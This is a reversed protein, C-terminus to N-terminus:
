GFAEVRLTAAGGTDKLLYDGMGDALVSVGTEMVEVRAGAVAAGPSGAETVRGSVTGLPGRYELVYLGTEVDSAVFLGPTTGFFPFV